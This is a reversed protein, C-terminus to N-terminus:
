PNDGFLVAQASRNPINLGYIQILDEDEPCGCGFGTFSYATALGLTDDNITEDRKLTTIPVNSLSWSLDIQDITGEEARQQNEAARKPKYTRQYKAKVQCEPSCYRSDARRGYEEPTFLKRCNLNQCNRYTGNRMVGRAMNIFLYQMLTCTGTRDDDEIVDLPLVSSQISSNVYRISQMVLRRRTSWDGDTFDDRLCDTIATIAIQAHCVAESVEEVAAVHCPIPGKARKGGLASHWNENVVDRLRCPSIGFRDKTIVDVAGLGDYLYVTKRFGDPVSTSRLGGLCDLNVHTGNEFTTNPHTRLGTIPGWKQQFDMLAFPDKYDLELFEKGYLGRPPTILERDDADCSDVYFFFQSHFEGLRIKPRWVQWEREDISPSFFLRL